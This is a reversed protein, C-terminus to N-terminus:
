AKMGLMIAQHICPCIRQTHIGMAARERISMRTDVLGTRRGKLLGIYDSTRSLLRIDTLVNRTTYVIYLVGDQVNSPRYNASTNRSDQRVSITIM